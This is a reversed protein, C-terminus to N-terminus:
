REVADNSSLGPFIDGSYVTQRKGNPLMVVLGGDDLIEVLRAEFQRDALNIMAKRDFGWAVTRWQAMIDQSTAPETTRIKMHKALVTFFEEITPAKELHQSLNTAEVIQESPNHVLNVGIGIIPKVAQGTHSVEILIGSVKQSRILVDNPWKLKIDSQDVGLEILSDRVSLSVLFPLIALSSHEFNWDPVYTGFFNGADSVWDRHRRGRGNTQRGALCWFPRDRGNELCTLADQNTSVTERYFDARVGPPALATWNELVAM